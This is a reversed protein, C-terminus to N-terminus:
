LLGEVAEWAEDLYKHDPGFIALSIVGHSPPNTIVVGESFGPTEIFAAKGRCRLGHLSSKLEAFSQYRTPVGEHCYIALDRWRAGFYHQAMEVVYSFGNNRFNCELALPYHVQGNLFGWDVNMYGRAGLDYAIQALRLAGAGVEDLRYFSLDKEMEDSFPFTFGCWGGDEFMQRDLGLLEIGADSLRVLSGCVEAIDMFPECLVVGCNYWDFVRSLLEEARGSMNGAGGAYKSKRLMIPMDFRQWLSIANRLEPLSRAVYGPVTLIGTNATLLKFEHKSNLREILGSRILEPATGHMPLGLAESLVVMTLSQYFPELYWDSGACLQSITKMLQPSNMIAEGLLRAETHEPILLRSALGELSLVTGIYDIFEGDVSVPLVLVDGPRQCTLFRAYLAGTKHSRYYDYLVDDIPLAEEANAVWLRPM